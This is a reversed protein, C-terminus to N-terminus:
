VRCAWIEKSNKWAEPIGDTYLVFVDGKSIQLEQEKLLKDINPMMGLAMGGRPVLEVEKKKARYSLIQEHGANCYKLSKTKRDWRVLLATAFM